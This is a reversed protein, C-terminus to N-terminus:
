LKKEVGERVKVLQFYVCHVDMLLMGLNQPSGGRGVSLCNLNKVVDCWTFPFKIEGRISRGVLSGSKEYSRTNSQCVLIAHPFWVQSSDSSVSMSLALLTDQVYYSVWKVMWKKLIM